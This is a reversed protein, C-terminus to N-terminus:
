LKYVTFFFHLNQGGKLSSLVSVQNSAWFNPRKGDLGFEMKALFEKPTFPLCM